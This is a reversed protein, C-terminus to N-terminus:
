SSCNTPQVWRGRSPVSCTAWPRRAFFDLHNLPLPIAAPWTFLHTPPLGTGRGICGCLMCQLGWVGALRGGEGKRLGAEFVGVQFASSLSQQYLMFSVLAGPSMRGALVLSGGYGLVAAAVANPLFSPRLRCFAPNLCSPPLQPSQPSLWQMARDAYGHLGCLSHVDCRLGGGGGCVGM